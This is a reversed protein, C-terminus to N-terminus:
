RACVSVVLAVLYWSIMLAYCSVWPKIPKESHVFSKIQTSLSDNSSDPDELGNSLLDDISLIECGGRSAWFFIGNSIM